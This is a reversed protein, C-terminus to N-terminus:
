LPQDLHHNKQVVSKDAKREIKAHLHDSAVLWSRIYLIEFRQCMICNQDACM